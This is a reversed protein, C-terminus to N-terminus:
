CSGFRYSYFCYEGVNFGLEKLDKKDEDSVDNPNICVNLIDHECHFPSYSDGYKKFIAIAQVFDDFGNFGNFGNNTKTFM